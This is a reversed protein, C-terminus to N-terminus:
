DFKVPVERDMATDARQALVPQETTRVREGGTLSADPSGLVLDGEALGQLVEAVTIGRLGLTVPVRTARGGTVTWVFVQGDDDFVLADNPVVLAQERRGTEVNVSVTMDQRLFEPMPDLRLRIDVSGRQPDVAPAIFSVSAAFPRDPYADSVCMAPQDLALVGLNKEDVPVLLETQGERAIEFLVRGPQVVDGPEANRTLVTGDVQARVMTKALEARAVAVRQRAATEGPNGPALSAASLGAQALAARADTEVQVAQEMMERSVLQQAYLERRRRAERSAQSLAAQARQRVADAQPRDSQQLNALAAEAERLRAELDDAKLVALVDGASVRDGERVRREAIVGAVQAGVQARSASAVRGTAVVTQVLLQSHIRYAPVLPGQIKRVVFWGGALVLVLFFALLVRLPSM